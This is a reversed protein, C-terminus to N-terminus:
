RCNRELRFSPTEKCLNIHLFEKPNVFVEGHKPCIICVKTDKNIYNVKEYNFEPYKSKALRVWEETTYARNYRIACKACGKGKLFHYGTQIQEGHETGDCFKEYCYFKVMLERKNNFFFEINSINHNKYIEEATKQHEFLINDKRNM